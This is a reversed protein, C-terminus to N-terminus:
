ETENGMGVVSRVFQRGAHSLSRVFNDGQVHSLGMFQRRVHSKGKALLFSHLIRILIIFLKISLSFCSSWTSIEINLICLIHIIVSWLIRLKPVFYYFTNFCKLSLNGIKYVICILWIISYKCKMQFELNFLM